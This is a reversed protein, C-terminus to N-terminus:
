YMAAPLELFDEDELCDEVLLGDVLPLFGAFPRWAV